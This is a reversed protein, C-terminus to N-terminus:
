PLIGIVPTMVALGASGVAFFAYKRFPLWVVPIPAKPVYVLLVERVHLRRGDDIRGSRARDRGRSRDPFAQLLDAHLHRHDGNGLERGVQDPRRCM